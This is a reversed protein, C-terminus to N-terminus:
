LILIKDESEFKSLDKGSLDIEVVLKKRKIDLYFKVKEGGIIGLEDALDSPIRVIVEKGTKKKYVKVTYERKM